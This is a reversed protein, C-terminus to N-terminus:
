TDTSKTSDPQTINESAAKLHPAVIIATVVSIILTYLISSWLKYEVWTAESFQYAVLLNLAGVIFFYSSWLYTLRTCIVDPLQLQEGLMRQMLNKETFLHSGILIAGLVWNFVTPKWQIFLQNHFILTASGFVLITALLWLLRKELKRKWTWILAVQLTTALMLIATASYIGDFQYHLSGLDLTHGSMKFAAFFAVIPMLELLQLM